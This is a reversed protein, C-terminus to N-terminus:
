HNYIVAKMRDEIHKSSRKGYLAPFKVLFKTIQTALKKKNYNLKLMRRLMCAVGDEFDVQISCRKAIRRAQSYVVGYLCSDALFAEAHNYYVIYQRLKKLKPDAKRDYLKITWTEETQSKVIFLDQHQIQFEDEQEVTLELYKTPYIGRYPHRTSISLVMCEDHTGWWRHRSIARAIYKSSSTWRDDQYRVTHKFHRVFFQWTTETGNIGPLFQEMFDIEYTFLYLNSLFPSMNAGMPIGLVQRLVVNGLRVHSNDVAKKIWEVLMEKTLIRQNKTDRRTSSTVNIWEAGKKSRNKPVALRVDEPEAGLLEAMMEWIKCLLIDM